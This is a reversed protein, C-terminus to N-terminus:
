ARGERPFVKGRKVRMFRAPASTTSNSTGSGPSSSRRSVRAAMSSAAQADHQRRADIKRAIERAGVLGRVLRADGIEFAAGVDGRGKACRDDAARKITRRQDKGSTRRCGDFFALSGPADGCHDRAQLPCGKAGAIRPDREADLGEVPKLGVDGVRGPMRELDDLCHIRWGDAHHEVGEVHVHLLEVHGDAM